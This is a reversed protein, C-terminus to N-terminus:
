VQHNTYFEKPLGILVIETDGYNTFDRGVMALPKGCREILGKPALKVFHDFVGLCNTRLKGVFQKLTNPWKTPNVGLPNFIFTHITHQIWKPICM